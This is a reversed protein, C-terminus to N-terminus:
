ALRNKELPQTIPCNSGPPALTQNAFGFLKQQIVSSQVTVKPLRRLTYAAHELRDAIAILTLMDHEKPSM